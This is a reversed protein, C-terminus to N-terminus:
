RSIIAYGGVHFKINGYVTTFHFGLEGQRSYAWFNRTGALIESWSSEASRLSLSGDSSMDASEERIVELADDISYPAFDASSLLERIEDFNKQDMLDVFERATREPWTVWCWGAAALVALVSSTLMGIVLWRPLKM